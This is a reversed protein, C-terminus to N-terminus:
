GRHRLLSTVVLTPGEDAAEVLRKSGAVVRDEMQRIARHLGNAESEINELPSHRVGTIRPRNNAFYAFTLLNL